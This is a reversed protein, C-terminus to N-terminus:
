FEEVFNLLGNGGGSTAIWDKVITLEEATLDTSSSGAQPMNEDQNSGSGRIRTYLLSSMPAGSVIVGLSVLQTFTKQGYSHCAGCHSQLIGSATKVEANTYKQEDQSSSNYVQCGVLFFGLTGILIKSVKVSFSRLFLFM